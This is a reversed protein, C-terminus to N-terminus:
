VANADIVGSTIHSMALLMQPQLLQPSLWPLLNSGM